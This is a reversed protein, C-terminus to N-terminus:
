PRVDTVWKRNPASATCERHLLNPAGPHSPDRRTTLMRRRKRKACLGAERM